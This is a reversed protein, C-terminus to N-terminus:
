EDLNSLIKEMSERDLEYNCGLLVMPKKGTMESLMLKHHIPIQDESPTETRIVKEGRFYPVDKFFPHQTLGYQNALTHIDVKGLIAVIANGTLGIQHTSQGFFTHPTKHQYIYIFPQDSNEKRHWGLKKLQTDYDETLTGYQTYNSQCEILNKLDTATIQAFLNPSLGLASFLLGTASLLFSRKINSPRNM